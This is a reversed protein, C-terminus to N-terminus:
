RPAQPLNPSPANVATMDSSQKAAAHLRELLPALKAVGRAADLKRAADKYAAWDEDSFEGGYLGGPLQVEGGLRPMKPDVSGGRHTWAGMEHEIAPINMPAPATPQGPGDSERIALARVLDQLKMPATM